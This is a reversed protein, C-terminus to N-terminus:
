RTRWMEGLERDYADYLQERTMASDSRAGENTSGFNSKACTGREDEPLVGDSGCADCVIGDVFGEGDCDDCLREGDGCKFRNSIQTEYRQLADRTARRDQVTPIRWGPRHLGLPNGTGDTIRNKSSTQQRQGTHRTMAADRMQMSVRVSRGDRLIGREDFADDDHTRNM